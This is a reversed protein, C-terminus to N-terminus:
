RVAVQDRIRAFAARNLVRKSLLEEPSRYPRGRAIAKGVRGVGLANLTEISATNLDIGPSAATTTTAGDADAAPEQLAALRVPPPESRPSAISGTSDVDPRKKAAEAVPRESVTPAPREVRRPLRADGEEASAVIPGAYVMRVNRQPGAEAARQPQAAPGPASRAEHVPMARDPRADASGNAFGAVTLGTTVAVAVLGLVSYTENMRRM